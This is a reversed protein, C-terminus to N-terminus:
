NSWTNHHRFNVKGRRDRCEKWTFTTNSIFLKDLYSHFYLSRKVYWKCLGLRLQRGVAETSVFRGEPMSGPLTFAPMPSCLKDLMDLIEQSLMSRGWLHGAPQSWPGQGRPHAHQHHSSTAASKPWGGWVQPHHWICLNNGLQLAYEGNPLPYIM